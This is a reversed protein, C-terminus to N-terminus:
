NPKFTKEVQLEHHHDVVDEVFGMENFQEMSMVYQEVGAFHNERQDNQDKCEEHDGEGEDEGVKGLSTFHKLIQFGVMRLNKIYASGGLAYSKDFDYQNISHDNYGVEQDVVKVDWHGKGFNLLFVELEQLIDIEDPGDESSTEEEHLSKTNEKQKLEVLDSIRHEFHVGVREPIDPEHDELKKHQDKGKSEEV